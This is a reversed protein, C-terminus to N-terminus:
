KSFSLSNEVHHYFRDVCKYVNKYPTKGRPFMCVHVAMCLFPCTQCRHHVHRAVAKIVPSTHHLGDAASSMGLLSASTCRALALRRKLMPKSVGTMTARMKSPVCGSTDSQTLASNRCAALEHM